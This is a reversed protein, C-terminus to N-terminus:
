IFSNKTERYLRPVVRTQHPNSPCPQVASPASPSRTLSFLTSLGSLRPQFSPGPIFPEIFSNKTERYLCPVVPTKHTGPRESAYTVTEGPSIPLVQHPPWQDNFISTQFKSSSYPSLPRPFREFPSSIK